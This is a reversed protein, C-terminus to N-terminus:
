NPHKQFSCLSRQAMLWVPVLIMPVYALLTGYIIGSVGFRHALAVKLSIAVGAFAAFLKVQPFVTGGGNLVMFFPGAVAIVASWLSLGVLLSVPVTFDPGIWRHFLPNAVWVFVAGVASTLIFTLRAMRRTNRAVWVADGAAMAEGNASWLPAYLMMAVATLLSAFRAPVSFSTVQQLGLTHAVIINDSYLSISSLISVLFFALGNRAIRRATDWECARWSFGLDPRVRGFFV